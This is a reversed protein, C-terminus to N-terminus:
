LLPVLLLDDELEYAVGLLLLELKEPLELEEPLEEEDDDELEAGAVPEILKTWSFSFPIAAIPILLGSSM